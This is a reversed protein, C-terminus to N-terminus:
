KLFDFLNNKLLKNLVAQQEPTFTDHHVFILAEPFVPAPPNPSTLLLHINEALLCAEQHQETPLSDVIAQLKKSPVLCTNSVGTGNEEAVHSAATALYDKFCIESSVDLDSDPLTELFRFSLMNKRDTLGALSHELVVIRENKKDTINGSFGKPYTDSPLFLITLEQKASIERLRNLFGLTRQAGTSESDKFSLYRNVGNPYNTYDSAFYDNVISNIQQATRKDPDTKVLESLWQNENFVFVDTAEALSELTAVVANQYNLNNLVPSPNVGLHLDHKEGLLRITEIAHFWPDSNKDPKLQAVLKYYISWNKTVSLATDVVPSDGERDSQISGGFFFSGPTKATALLKNWKNFLLHAGPKLADHSQVVEILNDRVYEVPNRETTMGVEHSLELDRISHIALALIAEQWKERVPEPLDAEISDSLCNICFLLNYKNFDECSIGPDQM